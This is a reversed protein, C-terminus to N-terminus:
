RNFGAMLACRSERAAAAVERLDEETIALPKEVFVHKGRRLAEAALGAHLDHRTAIFVIQSNEDDLIKKYDTTSYAFGFQDATGKASLGTAACVGALRFQGDVRSQKSARKAAPLLVGRAFNGAGIFSIGIEDGTVPKTGTERPQIPKQDDADPYELVLGCLRQAGNLILDYANAANAVTFRHTTLLGTNIKGEAVLRLFSEMNRKETWRVYGVPYDSGKEEYEPDYRGPGYSRSLKLELEK